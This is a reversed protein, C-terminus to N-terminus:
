YTGPPLAAASIDSTCFSIAAWPVDMKCVSCDPTTACTTTDLVRCDVVPAEVKKTEVAVTPEPTEEECTFTDSIYIFM